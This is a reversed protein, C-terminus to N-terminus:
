NHKNGLPKSDQQQQQAEWTPGMWRKYQVGLKWKEHHPISSYVFSELAKTYKIHTTHTYIERQGERGTNQEKSAEIVWLHPAAAVHTHIEVM